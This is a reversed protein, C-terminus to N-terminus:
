GSLAPVRRRGRRGLHRHHGSRSSVPSRGASLRLRRRGGAFAVLVGVVLCEAGPVLVLWSDNPVQDATLPRMVAPVGTGLAAASGAGAVASGRTRPTTPAFARLPFAFMVALAAGVVLMLIATRGRGRTWGMASVAHRADVEPEGSHPARTLSDVTAVM